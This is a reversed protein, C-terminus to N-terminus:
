SAPEKGSMGAAFKGKSSPPNTTTNTRTIATPAIDYGHAVEIDAGLLGRTLGGAGCFLDVAVISKAAKSKFPQASKSGVAKLKASPEYPKM